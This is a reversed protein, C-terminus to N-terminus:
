LKLELEIIRAHYDTSNTDSILSYSEDTFTEGLLENEFKYYEYGRTILWDHAYERKTFYGEVRSDCPTEGDEFHEDVQIVYIPQRLKDWEEKFRENQLNKNLREQFDSM